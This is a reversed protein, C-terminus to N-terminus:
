EKPLRASIRWSIEWSTNLVVVDSVIEIKKQYLKVANVFHIIYSVPQDAGGTGSLTEPDEGDSSDAEEKGEPKVGSDEEAGIREM